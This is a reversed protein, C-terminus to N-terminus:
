DWYEALSRHNLFYFLTAKVELVFFKFMGMKKARRKSTQVVIDNMFVFRYKKAVRRALDHDENTLLKADFGHFEKFIKKKYAFCVGNTMVFGLNNATRVLTNWIKLFFTDGPGEADFLGQKFVCGGIGRFKNELKELFDKSFRADADAFILV